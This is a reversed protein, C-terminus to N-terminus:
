DAKVISLTVAKSYQRLDTERSMGDTMALLADVFQDICTDHAEEEWRPMLVM